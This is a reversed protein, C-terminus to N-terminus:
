LYIQYCDVTLTDYIQPLAFCVPLYPTLLNIRAEKQTSYYYRHIIFEKPTDPLLSPTYQVKKQMNENIYM